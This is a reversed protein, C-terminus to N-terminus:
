DRKDYLGQHPSNNQRAVIYLLSLPCKLTAIHKKTM